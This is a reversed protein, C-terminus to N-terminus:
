MEVRKGNPTTSGKGYLLSALSGDMLEMLIGLQGDPPPKECAGLFRVLNAHNLKRLIDLQLAVRASCFVTDDLQIAVLARALRLQRALPLHTTHSACRMRSPQNSRRMEVPTISSRSSHDVLAAVCTLRQRQTQAVKHGAAELEAFTHSTPLFRVACNQGQWQAKYVSGSVGKSLYGGHADYEIESFDEVKWSM